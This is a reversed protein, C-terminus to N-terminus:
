HMYYKHTGGSSMHQGEFEYSITFDLDRHNKENPKCELTGSVTEGKRITLVEPMYFVTQKWHTDTYHPSTTFFIPKHCDNFWTDFYLVWAHIYDNRKATLKWPVTFSLDEKKVKHIDCEFIMDQDTCVQNSDVVDVLPEQLVQQKLPSYDFGYVNDWWEIKSEKYEADEIASFYLRCSSPYLLGDDALWKDRAYLVTDLMSEYFLAYGMWESIIIDVKEVPLQIEEVKGQILTVKDEFGNLSVIERAKTIIRAMDVGYVHKAGAKAAFMCLIGTGCGIDLVVKDKFMHANQMIARQYTVTRVRDKLMEEHIGFHSYSDFYYDAASLQNLEEQTKGSGTTGNTDAM